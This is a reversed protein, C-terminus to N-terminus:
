FLGGKSRELSEDGPSARCERLVRPIGAGNDDVVIRHRDAHKAHLKIVGGRPTVELTKCRNGIVKM